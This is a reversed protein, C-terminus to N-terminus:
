KDDLLYPVTSIGLAYKVDNSLKSLNKVILDVLGNGDIVEIGRNTAYVRVDEAVLASTIFYGDYDSYRSDELAGVLQDIGYQNSYGTHHKIQILIQQTVFSDQKVASVDADAKGSFTGKYLVKADYGECVMIDRMLHELGIGGSRLNTKGTQINSLLKVKFEELSKEEIEQLQKTYSYSEMTFMKEIEDKFEQLDAVSLGQASLRTQLGTVLNSRPITLLKGNHYRYSVVRQNALDLSEADQSYREEEEAEAIVVSSYYPVIIYDGKKINKFRLAQNVYRSVTRKDTSNAYYTSRLTSSLTSVDEKSFDVESWGVAVVSNEFFEKFDAETSRMARVMWYNREM